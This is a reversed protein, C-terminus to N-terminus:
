VGISHLSLRYGDPYKCTVEVRAAHRYTNIKFDTTRIAPEAADDVHM